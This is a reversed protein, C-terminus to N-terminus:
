PQGDIRRFPPPSSDAWGLLLNAHSKLAAQVIL